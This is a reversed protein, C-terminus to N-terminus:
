YRSAVHIDRPQHMSLLCASKGTVHGISLNRYCSQYLSQSRCGIMVLMSCLVQSSFCHYWWYAAIGGHQWGFSKIMQRSPLLVQRYGPGDTLFSDNYAWTKTLLIISSKTVCIEQITSLSTKQCGFLDLKIAELFKWELANDTNALTSPRAGKIRSRCDWSM